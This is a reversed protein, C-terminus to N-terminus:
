RTADVKEENIFTTQQNQVQIAGLPTSKHTDSM